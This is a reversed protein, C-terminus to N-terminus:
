FQYPLCKVKYGSVIYISNSPSDGNGAVIIAQRREIGGKHKPFVNKPPKIKGITTILETQLNKFVGNGNDNKHHRHFGHYFTNKM